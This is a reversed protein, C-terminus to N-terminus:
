ITRNMNLYYEWTKNEKKAKDYEFMDKTFQIGRKIGHEKFIIRFYSYGMFEKSQKFFWIFHKLANM